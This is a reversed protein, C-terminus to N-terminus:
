IQTDRIDMLIRGLIDQGKGYCKGWFTDGWSNTEVIEGEISKLKSLLEPNSFKQKVLETMVSVRIENWDERLEM